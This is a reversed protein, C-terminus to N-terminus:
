ARRPPRGRTSGASGRGRRGAHWASRRCRQAPRLRRCGRGRRYSRARGRGTRSADHALRVVVALGPQEEEVGGVAGVGDRVEVLEFGGVGAALLPQSGVLVAAETREVEGLVESGVVAHVPVFQAVVGLEGHAEQIVHHVGVSVHGGDRLELFGGLAVAADPEADHPEAVQHVVGAHAVAGGGPLVEARLHHLEHAVVGHLGADLEGALAASEGGDLAADVVGLVQEPLRGGREDFGLLVPSARGDVPAQDGLADAAVADAVGGLGGHRGGAGDGGDGATFAVAALRDEGEGVDAVDVVVALVELEGVGAGGKLLREDVGADALHVALVDEVAHHLFAGALGDLRDRWFHAVDEGDAGVDAGPLVHAHLSGQLCEDVIGEGLRDVEGLVGGHLVDGGGVHGGPLEVALADGHVDGTRAVLHHQFRVGGRLLLFGGRIVGM